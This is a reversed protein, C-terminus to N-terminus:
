RDPSAVTWSEALCPTVKLNEDFMVLSQYSLDGWAQRVAYSAATRPDLDAPNADAAWVITGGTKVVVGPAARASVRADPAPRAPAPPLPTPTPRTDSVLRSPEVPQQCAGLLSAAM